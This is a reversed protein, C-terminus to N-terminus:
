KLTINNKKLYFLLFIAILFCFLSMTKLILRNNDKYFIIKSSNPKLSILMLSNELNRISTNHTKWNKDYLFPIVYVIDKNSKNIIEYKNQGLRKLNILNSNYFLKEIRLLCFVTEFENCNQLKIKNNNKQNFLISSTNKRELLYIKEKYSINIGFIVNFKNIDINELESELILLYKILFLNLFFDNSIDDFKPALESYM